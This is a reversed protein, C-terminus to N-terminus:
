FHLRRKLESNIRRRSFIFMGIVTLTSYVVCAASTWPVNTWGRLIFLLPFLGLLAIVILYIMYEKYIFPRVISFIFVSLSGSIIIFPIVYDLSWGKFDFSFDIALVVLSLLLVQCLIFFGYNKGKKLFFITSFYLYFSGIITILCWPVSKAVYTNILVCIISISIMCFLLLRKIMQSVYNNQIQPYDNNYIDDKVTLSANCLPCKEINNEIKFKCSKCYKM